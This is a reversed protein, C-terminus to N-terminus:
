KQDSDRRLAHKGNNIAFGFDQSPSLTDITTPRKSSPEHSINTGVEVIRHIRLWMATTTADHRIFQNFM